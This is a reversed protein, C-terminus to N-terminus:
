SLTYFEIRDRSVRVAGDVRRQRSEGALVVSAGSVALGDDYVAILQGRVETLNTLYVRVEPPPAERPPRLSPAAMCASDHAPLLPACSTM